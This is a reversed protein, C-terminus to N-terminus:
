ALWVAAAPRRALGGFGPDWGVAVVGPERSECQPLDGPPWGPCSSRCPQTAPHPMGEVERLAAVVRWGPAFGSLVRAPEM